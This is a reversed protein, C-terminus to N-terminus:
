QVAFLPIQRNGSTMLGYVIYTEIILSWLLRFYHAGIEM